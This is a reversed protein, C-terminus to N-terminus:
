SDRGAGVGRGGSQGRTTLQRKLGGDGGGVGM